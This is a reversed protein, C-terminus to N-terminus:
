PVQLNDNSIPLSAWVHIYLWICIDIWCIEFYTYMHMCFLIGKYGDVEMNAERPSSSYDSTTSIGRRRASRVSRVVDLHSEHWHTAYYMPTSGLITPKGLLKWPTNRSFIILVQTTNPPSGVIKPVDMDWWPSFSMWRLFSDLHSINIGRNKPPLLSWFAQGKGIFVLPWNPNWYIKQQMHLFLIWLVSTFLPMGKQTNRCPECHINKHNKKSTQHVFSRWKQSSTM